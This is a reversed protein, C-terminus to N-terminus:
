VTNICSSVVLCVFVNLYQELFPALLAYKTQAFNIKSYNNEKKVKLRCRSFFKYKQVGILFVKNTFGIHHCRMM